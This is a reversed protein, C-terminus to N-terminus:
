TSKNGDDIDDREGQDLEVGFGQVRERPVNVEADHEKDEDGVGTAEKEGDGMGQMESVTLGRQRSMAPAREPGPYSASRRRHEKVDNEHEHDEGNANNSTGSQDNDREHIFDASRSQSTELHRLQILIEPELKVDFLDLIFRRVPALYHNTSIIRLARHFLTVSTFYRPHRNRIRKLNNMASPALVYNGLNAISTMIEGEQGTLKPLPLTQLPADQRTWPEIHAFRDINNPLCLGTTAGLATRTSVWGLEELVEAGMRTSSILGIVFFCTGKITLVPSQEALEIIVELIEEDELFPLGGETSGINGLAWLVSKVSTLVPGDAEEMGHLRVIEAFETVLGKDKLLQRGEPTKALEGFFHTPAIGDYTWYDEV